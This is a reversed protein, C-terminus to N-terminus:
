RTKTPKNTQSHLPTSHPPTPHPPTPHLPLVGRGATANKLFTKAQEYRAEKGEKEKLSANHLNIGEIFAELIKGLKPTADADAVRRRIADDTKDETM